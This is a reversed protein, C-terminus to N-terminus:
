DTFSPSITAGNNSLAGRSTIHGAGGGGGGGGRNSTVGDQGDIVTVYGGDGGNASPANGEGDGGLAAVAGLQGHQGAAATMQNTGGGGGGGNAAIVAGSGLQITGAELGIMGGSGGGGGGSRDGQSGSGGQGGSAIIGGILLSKRALLYVAGGSNGGDGGIESQGDGGDAGPCGGHFGPDSIADSGAGGDSGDGDEADAGAGGAGGFGGGGGGGGGNEASDGAESTDCNDSNAGAGVDTDDSGVDIAGAVMLNEWSVLILPRGGTARLTTLAKVNIFGAVVVRPDDANGGLTVSTHPVPTQAPSTLIGTDTDYSYTGNEDLILPEHVIEFDVCPDVITPQQAWDMCNIQAVADPTGGDIPTADLEANSADVLPQQGADDDVAGTTSTDFQCATLLLCALVGHRIMGNVKGRVPSSNAGKGGITQVPRGM